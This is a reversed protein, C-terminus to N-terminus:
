HLHSLLLSVQAASRLVKIEDNKLEHLQKMKRRLTGLENYGVIRKLRPEIDM